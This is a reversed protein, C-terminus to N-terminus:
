QGLAVRSRRSRRARWSNIQCAGQTVSRFVHDASGLAVVQGAVAQHLTRVVADRLGRGYETYAANADPAPDVRALQWNGAEPVTGSTDGAIIHVSDYRLAHSGAAARALVIPRVDARGIVDGLEVFDVRDQHVRDRLEDAGGQAGAVRADHDRRRGM